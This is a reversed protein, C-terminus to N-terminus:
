QKVIEWERKEAGIVIQLIYNGAPHRSLDATMSVSLPQIRLLEQGQLNWVVLSGRTNEPMNTIEVRLAGATPNPFVRIAIVGAQEVAPMIETSDTTNEPSKLPVMQRHIRNGAADYTYNFTQASGIFTLFVFVVCM